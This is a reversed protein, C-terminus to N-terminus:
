KNAMTASSLAATYLAIRQLKSTVYCIAYANMILELIPLSIFAACHLSYAYCSYTSQTVSFTNIIQTLSMLYETIPSCYSNKM